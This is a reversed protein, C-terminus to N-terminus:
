FDSEFLMHVDIWIKLMSFSSPCDPELPFYEDTKEDSSSSSHFLIPGFLLDATVLVGSKTGKFQLAM